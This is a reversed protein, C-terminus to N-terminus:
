VTRPVTRRSELAAGSVNGGITYSPESREVTEGVNLTQRKPKAM